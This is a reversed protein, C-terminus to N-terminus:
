KRARQELVPAASQVPAPKVRCKGDYVATGSGATREYGYPTNYYDDSTPCSACAGLALVAGCLAILGIKKM